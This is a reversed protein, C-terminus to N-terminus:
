KKVKAETKVGGEIFFVQITENKKNFVYELQFDSDDESVFFKTKSEPVLEVERGFNMMLKGEKEVVEFPFPTEFRAVYRSLNEKKIEIPKHAYPIIVEKDFMIAAIGKPLFDLNTERNALVIISVEDDPYYLMVSSYGPINGTHFIVKRDFFEDIFIGYGAGKDQHNPKYMKSLAYQGIIKNSNLALTWNLLDKLTSFLGGHSYGINFNIVMQTILSNSTQTYGYARNKIVADQAFIGSNFMGAKQFLNKNVYEGYTQGSVQEIVYGLLIYGTNSYGWFTGPSFDFPEKKFLNVISDKSTEGINVNKFLGSNQYFNKIGSTHNLLMHLTVSDGKPYNPFFKSLKDNVSLKGEEEL